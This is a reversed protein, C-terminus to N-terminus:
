RDPVVLPPRNARERIWNIARLVHRQSAIRLEITRKGPFDLLTLGMFIAIVGPGPLVLMLIGALVFFAGTLNRVVLVIAGIAPHRQRYEGGPPLDVAFYDDPM